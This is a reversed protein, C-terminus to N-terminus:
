VAKGPTPINPNHLDDQVVTGVTEPLLHALRRLALQVADPAV